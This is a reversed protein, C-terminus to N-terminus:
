NLIDEQRGPNIFVVTEQNGNLIYKSRCKEDKEVSGFVTQMKAKSRASQFVYGFIAYDEKLYFAPIRKGMEVKVSKLSMPRYQFMRLRDVFPQSMLYEGYRLHHMTRKVNRGLIFDDFIEIVPWFDIESFSTRLNSQYLDM